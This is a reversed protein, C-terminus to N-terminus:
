RNAKRARRQALRKKKKIAKPPFTNRKYKQKKKYDAIMQAAIRMAIARELANGGEGTNTLSQTNPPQPIATDGSSEM